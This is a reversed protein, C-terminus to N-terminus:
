VIVGGGILLDRRYFVASQGPTVSKKPKSMTIRYREGEKIISAVGEPNSNYRIMVSIERYDQPVSGFWNTNEILFEDLYLLEPNDTVILRNHEVDMSLVYLPDSWPTNLGKRQGITYYPLGSHEGIVQGNPLTIDGQKIELVEKLFDQYKGRIFCIEQSDKKAAVPIGSELAIRRIEQKNMAGVPFVTKSLQFQSLGWLMYSQDKASDIGKQLYYAGDQFVIGAYHGTAIKDAGLALIADLFAGWKITPNCLTCPNPTKASGYEKIFSQVVIEDFKSKLDIVHHEIGLYDCVNKADLIAQNLGEGKGFGFRVDDFQRMTFGVVEHGDKQLLKATVSSDVGGSMAVAIRM